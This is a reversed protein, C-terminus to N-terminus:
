GRAVEDAIEEATAQLASVGHRGLALLFDHRSMAALQAAKSQSILGMEYWKCLAALMMDAVFEEPPKRLVSFAEDPLDITVRVSM